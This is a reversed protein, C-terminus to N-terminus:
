NSKVANVKQPIERTEKIIKQVEDKKEYNNFDDLLILLLRSAPPQIFCIPSHFFFSFDGEFALLFTKHKM